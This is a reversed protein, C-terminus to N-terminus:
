FNFAHFADILRTSKCLCGKMEYFASASQVDIQFTGARIETTKHM